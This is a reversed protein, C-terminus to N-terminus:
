LFSFRFVCFVFCMNGTKNRCKEANKKLRRDNEKTSVNAVTATDLVLVHKNNCQANDDIVAADCRRYLQTNWQM